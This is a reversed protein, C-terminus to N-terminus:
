ANLKLEFVYEDSSYGNFHDANPIFDIQKMGLKSGLPHIGFKEHRDM